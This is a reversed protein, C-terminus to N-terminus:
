DEVWLDWGTEGQTWANIWTSRVIGTEKSYAMYYGPGDAAMAGLYASLNLRPYTRGLQEHNVTSVTCLSQFCNENMEPLSIPVDPGTLEELPLTLPLFESSIFDSNGANNASEEIILKDNQFTFVYQDPSQATSYTTEVEFSNGNQSLVTLRLSDGTYTIPTTGNTRNSNATYALYIAEQGVTLTTFSLIKNEEIPDKPLNEECAILVPLILACLFFLRQM